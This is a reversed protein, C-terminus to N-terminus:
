SVISMIHAILEWATNDSDIGETVSIVRVGLNYVLHKLLPLSIVSERALRSLSHFYLVKFKGAEAAALMANLGTRDYSPARFPRM